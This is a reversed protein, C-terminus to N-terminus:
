RSRRIFASTCVRGALASATRSGPPVPVAYTTGPARLRMNPDVFDSLTVTMNIPHNDARVHVQFSEFENRAASLRAWHDIGPM